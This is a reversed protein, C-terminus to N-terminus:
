PSDQASGPKAANAADASEAKYFVTTAFATRDHAPM